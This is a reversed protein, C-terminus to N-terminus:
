PKEANEMPGITNTYEDALKMLNEQFNPSLIYEKKPILITANVMYKKRWKVIYLCSFQAKRMYDKYDDMVRMFIDDVGQIKANVLASDLRKHEVRVTAAWFEDTDFDWCPLEVTFSKDNVKKFVSPITNESIKAENVIRNAWGIDHMIIDASDSQLFQNKSRLLVQQFKEATEDRVIDTGLNKNSGCSILLLCSVIYVIKKIM